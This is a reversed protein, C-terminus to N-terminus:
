RLVTDLSLTLDNYWPTGGREGARLQADSREKGPLVRAEGESGRASAM